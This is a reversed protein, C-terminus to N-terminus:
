NMMELGGDLWKYFCTNCLTTSGGLGRGSVDPSREAVFSPSATLCFTTFQANEWVSRANAGCHQCSRPAWQAEAKPTNGTHAEVTAPHMTTAPTNAIVLTEM